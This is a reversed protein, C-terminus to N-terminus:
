DRAFIEDHPITVGLAPLPLDIAVDHTVDNWGSPGTRQVIRLREVGIDVFVITDISPLAMYENLKVRLDTRSTGDSLVEFVVRPDDFATARDNSPDGRGCYVSVDPYRVSRDHTRAAMDSAYASCGSGRLRVRLAAAINVQVQAHRATGGAMMRIVGNDLEAKQDGFDIELFQEATLLPYVPQTAM